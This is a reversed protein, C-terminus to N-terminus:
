STRSQRDVRLRQSRSSPCTPCMTVSGTSSLTSTRCRTLCHVKALDFSVGLSVSERFNRGWTSICHVEDFVIFALKGNNWLWMIDNKLRQSSDLKEPTCFLVAPREDDSRLSRHIREIEAATMDGSFRAVRVGKAQLAHMQDYMLSVLPTIVLTVKGYRAHQVVAPLQYCLSKGGGTPMLLFVDLGDMSASISELQNPRFGPLKFIDRLAAALDAYYPTLMLKPDPAAPAVPLPPMSPARSISRSPVPLPAPAPAPPPPPLPPPEVPALDEFKDWLGGDSDYEEVAAAATRTYDEDIDISDDQPEEELLSPGDYPEFVDRPRPPPPPEEIPDHNFRSPVATNAVRASPVTTPLGLTTWRPAPLSPPRGAKRASVLADICSLKDQIM